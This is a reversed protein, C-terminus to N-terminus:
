QQQKANAMFERRGYQIKAARDKKGKIKSFGFDAREARASFRLEHTALGVQRIGAPQQIGAIGDPRQLLNFLSETLALDAKSRAVRVTPNHM